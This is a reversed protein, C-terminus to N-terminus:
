KIKVSYPPFDIGHSVFCFSLTDMRNLMEVNVMHSCRRSQERFRSGFLEPSYRPICRAERGHSEEPDAMRRVKNGPTITPPSVLIFGPCGNALTAYANFGSGLAYLPVTQQIM